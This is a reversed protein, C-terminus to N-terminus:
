EVAPNFLVGIAQFWEPTPQPNMEVSMGIKRMVGISAVNEHETTAVLRAVRQTEFAFKAMAGAAEAAYGLRRHASGIAWFLGMEPRFLGSPAAGATSRFVPLQDFPGFSPVLGVSGIVEDDDKLVVAYDGYPPQRLKALAPYNRVSWELWAEREDRPSEGFCDDMLRTVADLDAMVFPRIRLRTTEISIPCM